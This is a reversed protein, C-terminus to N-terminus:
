IYDDDVAMDLIQHLVTHIGDITAAKLGREDALYNYFRKIDSKKLAFIRKSGIQKRVFTEYMYKYNEFTSNKLGRKLHTVHISVGNSSIELGPDPKSGATNEQCLLDQEVPVIQQHAQAPLNELCTARVRRLRYYYNAKSIGRSACWDTVRMGDPQNQCERIQAAWEQLRYQVAAFTTDSSM